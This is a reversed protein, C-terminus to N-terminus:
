LWGDATIVDGVQPIQGAAFIIVNLNSVVDLPQTMRVGNRYIVSTSVPYSLFFNANLGDITGTITGNASSFQAPATATGAPQQAAIFPAARRMGQRQTTFPRPAIQTKQESRVRDQVIRFLEGGLVGDDYKPGVALRMCRTAIEDYGKRGGTVGAAYNALFTLSGDIGVAGATPATGSMEYTIEVDRATTAGVLYFTDKRWVFEILRDSMTRQTLAERAEMDRFLESSGSLKERLTVFDAFDTIGADAPTFSTTDPMVTYVVVNRIAPCQGILLAQMLADYAQQFGNTFVSDVFVKGADDDFIGRYVTKVQDVSPIM